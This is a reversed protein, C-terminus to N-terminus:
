LAGELSRSWVIINVTRPHLASDMMRRLRTRLFHEDKNSPDDVFAARHMECFRRLVVRPVALLPRAVMFAQQAPEHQGLVHSVAVRDRMGALGALRSGFILRHLM